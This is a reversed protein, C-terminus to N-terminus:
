LEILHSPTGKAKESNYRDAMAAFKELPADEELPLLEQRPDVYKNKSGKLRVERIFALRDGNFIYDPNLFYKGQTKSEAIFGKELLEKMGKMFTAKSLPTIQQDVDSFSLHMVDRGINKQVEYYLVEFVKTGAGTLETLQKVGNIYLKVFQTKDVETVAGFTVGPAIIEGTTESVVMMRDNRSSTVRRVGVRSSTLDIFPNTDYRQLGRRSTTAVVTNETKLTM